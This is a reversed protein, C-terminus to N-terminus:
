GARVLLYVWNAAVALLLAIGADRRRRATTLVELRRAFTVRVLLLVGGCVVVVCMLPNLAFARWPEGALLALVM